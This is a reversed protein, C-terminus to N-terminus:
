NKKLLVVVHAAIGQEAGIEGLGEMTKAKVSVYSVDIELARAIVTRMSVIYPALKPQQAQITADLNIVYFGQQKILHLVQQVLDLSNASQYRPDNDPFHQGIDGLAAAGLLADCIAHLLIDGDSHAIVGKNFPITVGGIILPKGGESLPHIDFGHGIRM